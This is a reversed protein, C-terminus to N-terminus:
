EPGTDGYHIRGELNGLCYTENRTEVTCTHGVCMRQEKIGDVIRDM